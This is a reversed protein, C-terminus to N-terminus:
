NGVIGERILKEIDKKILKESPDLAKFEIDAIRRFKPIFEYLALDTRARLAKSGTFQYPNQTPAELARGEVLACYIHRAEQESVREQKSSFDPFIMRPSPERPPRRSCAVTWLTEAARKNLELLDDGIKGNM